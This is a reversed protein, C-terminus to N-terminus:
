CDSLAISEIGDTNLAGIVQRIYRGSTVNFSLVVNRTQCMVLLRQTRPLHALHLLLFASPPMSAADRPRVQEAVFLVDDHVALGTPHDM